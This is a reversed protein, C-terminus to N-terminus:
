GSKEIKRHLKKVHEGVYTTTHSRSWAVINAYIHRTLVVIHSYQTPTHSGIFGFEPTKPMRIM